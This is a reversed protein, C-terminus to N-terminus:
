TKKSLTNKLSLYLKYFGYPLLYYIIIKKIIKKSIEWLRINKNIRKILINFESDGMINKVQEHLEKKANKYTISIGGYAYVSIITNIYIFISHYLWYEKVMFISDSITCFNEDYFGHEFFLSRKIFTNQHSLAKALYLDDISLKQPMEWFDSYDSICDSYYIDAEDLDKIIDFAKSLSDLSYLWDGSNLFLCYDGKAQQIGKNMANYVGTDPESIWYAIKKDYKKIIECSNDSSAGDIVLWEFDDFTQCIVSQCTRELGLANNKNITIISLKV